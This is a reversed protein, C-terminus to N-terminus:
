LAESVIGFCLRPFVGKKEVAAVPLLRVSKESGTAGLAAHQAIVTGKELGFRGRSGASNRSAL